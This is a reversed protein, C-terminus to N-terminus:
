NSTELKISVMNNTHTVDLNEIINKQYSIYSAVINYEGPKLDQFSFKGDFDTYAKQNTGELKVEVGVLAENSNKDIVFGSLQITAAPSEVTTTTEAKNENTKAYTTIALGIIILSLFIKKMDKRKFNMKFDQLQNYLHVQGQNLV